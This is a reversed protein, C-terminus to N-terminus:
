FWRKILLSRITYYLYTSPNSIIHYQNKIYLEFVPMLNTEKDLNQLTM